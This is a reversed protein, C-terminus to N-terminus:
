RLDYQYFVLDLWQDFKHACRVVKGSYTFGVHEHLRMSAHNDGDIEAVLTVFNGQKAEILLANLLQKGVGKRQAEPKIYISHMVTHRYAPEPRFPELAAYGLIHEDAEFVLITMGAQTLREFWTLRQEVTHLTDDYTATTHEVAHNYISVIAAVDQLTAYRIM